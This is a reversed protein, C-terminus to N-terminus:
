PGPMGKKALEPDGNSRRLLDGWVGEDISYSITQVSGDCFSVNLGAAHASGFWDMPLNSGDPPAGDYDQFVQGYRTNDVDYGQYMSNNDAGNGKSPNSGSSSECAGEYFRPQMFKEAVLVVKSTGDTIQDVRAAMRFASIGDFDRQMQRFGVGSFHWDCDPYDPESLCGESPGAGGGPMPPHTGGGNIAYDTKAISAPPNCPMDPADVNFPQDCHAGDCVVGRSSYAPQPTSSRRTPCNFVPIPHSMQKALEIKKQAWSLGKGVQYIDQEELYPAVAYIWGGPQQIGVGQDPDGMWGFTWGGYPFIGQANEHNLCATAIQRLGSKCQSRRAAERAAQIAPLLLAVLIGIIAIVVLLEVLTFGQRVTYSTRRSSANMTGAEM